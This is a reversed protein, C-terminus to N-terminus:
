TFVVHSGKEPLWLLTRFINTAHWTDRQWKDRIPLSVKLLKGKFHM